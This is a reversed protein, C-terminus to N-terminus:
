FDIEPDEKKDKTKQVELSIKKYKSLYQMMDNDKFNMFGNFGEYKSIIRNNIDKVILLLM